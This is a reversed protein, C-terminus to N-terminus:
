KGMATKRKENKAVMYWIVIRITATNEKPWRQFHIYKLFFLM